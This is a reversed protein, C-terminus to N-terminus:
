FPIDQDETKKAMKKNLKGRFTEIAKKYEAEEKLAHVQDWVQKTMKLGTGECEGIIGALEDRLEAIRKAEESIKPEDEGGPLDDITSSGAKAGHVVGLKEIINEVSVAAAPHDVVTADRMEEIAYLGLVADPAIRRVGRGAARAFFMDKKYLKWNSKGLLGATQAEEETFSSSTDPWGPRSFLIECGKDDEKVVRWTVGARKQAIALLAKAEMSLRGNIVAMTNLAAVPPIGLEIGAQIVTVAGAVNKVGQFLGSNLLDSALARLNHVDPVQLTGETAKVISKEM